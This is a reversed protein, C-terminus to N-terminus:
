RAPELILRGRPKLTPLDYLLVQTKGEAEVTVAIRDASVATSIVRAGVPLAATVDGAPAADGSKYVRLGIVGLVTAIAIGTLITSIVM